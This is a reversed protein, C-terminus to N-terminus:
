LDQFMINHDSFKDPSHIDEFQGPLSTLILDLSNQDRTPFSVMQELGHNNMIDLLIQGESQSLMTGSKSLRDPWVIERFNFTSGGLVHFNQVKINPSLTILSTEFCSSTKSQAVEKDIGAQWLILLKTRSCRLGFQSLIM